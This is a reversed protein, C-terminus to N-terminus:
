KHAACEPAATVKHVLHKTVSVCLCYIWEQFTLAVARFFFEVMSANKFLFSKITANIDSLEM